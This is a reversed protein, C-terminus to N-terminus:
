IELISWPYSTKMGRDSIESKLTSVFGIGSARRMSAGIIRRHKVDFQDTFPGIKHALAEGEAPCPVLRVYILQKLEILLTAFKERLDFRNLRL